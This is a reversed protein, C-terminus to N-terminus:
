PGGVENILGKVVTEMAASKGREWAAEYDEPPLATKLDALLRSALQRDYNLREFLPHHTLFAFIELARGPQQNHYALALAVGFLSRLLDLAEGSTVTSGFAAYVNSAAEAPQGLGFLAFGLRIQPLAAVSPHDSPEILALAEEAKRQALPYNGKRMELDSAICLARLIELRNNADRAAEELQRVYGEAADLNESLQAAWALNALVRGISSVARLTTAMVLSEQLRTRAQDLRGFFVDFVGLNMLAISAINTEGRERLISLAEEWLMYAKEYQNFRGASLYGLNIMIMAQLFRDEVAQAADLAEQAMDWARQSEGLREVAQNLFLLSMIMFTREDHERNIQLAQQLVASAQEVMAQGLLLLAGYATLVRGLVPRRDAEQTDSLHKVAAELLALGEQFRARILCYHWLSGIMPYLAQPQDQRIAWLWAARVNEFDAAVANLAELQRNNKFHPEREQMAAAYYNMHAARAAEAHGATNLRAEAYQRLLEHIHYRGSETDRYLLSKNVLAMLIRLNAGAVAEAAERTFGGRFVALQMFAQQEAASMQQWAYDLVARISRQREPLEGEDTALFDISQGIEEAIEQPTLMGLWGAALVIGLPMGQVRRCIRAVYDLNDATLAFDPKARRASNMFLRVAAYNLADEPTEWAPFDMGSLHFLAEGPQSLRQRSTALIQVAPAYNLIETVLGAGALLHEFNDMVLLLAKRQLFDLVQQRPARGDGQFQYGTADAIANVINDPDNLPALEVFYVGEAFQPLAREAAELSLRTKGMGGPALVTMLRIDPASLLRALEELEHERGVFPTTQAPLNHRARRTFDPTDVVFRAPPPTSDRGELIAELEAGVIRVSPLRAQPEKELMRYVLDVLATPVAPALAELDPLPASLIAGILATINPGSYPRQGTLMEFLMVGFAWIDGRADFTGGSFAEPPLYDLTGILANTDTVRSKSGVHAVGFDTLRLVDDEGILVNAPKLDRHIINLKHARTLADALDIALRLITELPVAGQSILAALDGGAVYEMVLYHDGDEEVADLMKVINPHNLARLAEGERKFREINEPQTLQPKLHKVAIPQRTQMDLAKFVTGMGGSGLQEEIRYRQAITRASM